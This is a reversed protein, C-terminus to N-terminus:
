AAARIARGATVGEGAGTGASPQPKRSVISQDWLGLGASRNPHIANADLFRAHTALRARRDAISVHWGLLAAVHLTSACRRRRPFDRITDAACTTSSSM